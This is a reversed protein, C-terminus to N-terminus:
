IHWCLTDLFVKDHMLINHYICWEHNLNRVLINIQRSIPALLYVNSSMVTSVNRESNGKLPGTDHPAEGLYSIQTEKRLQPMKGRNYSLMQSCQQYLVLLRALKGLGQLLLWETALSLNINSSEKPRERSYFCIYSNLPKVTMNNEQKTCNYWTYAWFLVLDQIFVTKLKIYNRAKQLSCNFRGM